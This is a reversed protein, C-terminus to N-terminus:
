GGSYRKWSRPSPPKRALSARFSADIVEKASVNKPRRARPRRGRRVTKPGLCGNTFQFAGAGSVTSSRRPARRGSATAACPLSAGLSSRAAAHPLANGSQLKGASPRRMSAAFIPSPPVIVKRYPSRRHRCNATRAIPTTPTRAPSMSKARQRNPRKRATISARSAAPVHAGKASPILDGSTATGSHSPSTSARPAPRTMAAARAAARPRAREAPFASIRAPATNSSAAASAAPPCAASAASSTNPGASPAIM